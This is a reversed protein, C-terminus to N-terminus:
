FRGAVSLAGGAPSAAVAVTTKASARPALLYLLAGTALAAGGAAFSVTSVTAWTSASDRQSFAPSGAPCAPPTGPCHSAADNYTSQAKFGAFTGVGIGALGVAGVVIGIVKIGGGRSVSADPPLDPTTGATLGAVPASAPTPEPVPPPADSELPPLDVSLNQQSVALEVHTTWTKKGPASAEIDHGGGDRPVAVGWEPQRVPEGDCRVELGPVQAEPSVAIILHSLTPELKDARKEAARARDVQKATQAEAQATRFAAWASALKGAREYCAALNLATGPAPEIAQSDAFKPCAAAFDGAAMLRRGEKFLAEARAADGKGDARAVGGTTSLIAVAVLTCRFSPM